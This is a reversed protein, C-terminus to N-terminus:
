NTDQKGPLLVAVIAPLPVPTQVGETLLVPVAVIVLGVEGVVVIVPKLPVPTYVNMSVLPLQASEVVTVTVAWGLAPGSSVIHWFPVARSVAVPVPDHDPSEDFGPALVIVLGLVAEVV